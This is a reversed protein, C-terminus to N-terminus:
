NNAGFLKKYSTGNSGNDFEHSSNTNKRKVFFPDYDPEFVPM